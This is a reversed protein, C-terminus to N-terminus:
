LTTIKITGLDALVGIKAEDTRGKETNSDPGIATYIHYDSKETTM